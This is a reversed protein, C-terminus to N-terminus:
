GRMSCRYSRASSSPIIGVNDIEITLTGDYSGGSVPTSASGRGVVNTGGAAGPEGIAARSVLCEVYLMSLSPVNQIRVPVDLTFDAAAAAGPSALLIAAAAIRTATRM